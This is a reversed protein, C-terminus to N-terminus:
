LLCISLPSQGENREGHSRPDALAVRTELIRGTMVAVKLIAGVGGWFPHSPHAFFNERGHKLVRAAWDNVNMSPVPFNEKFSERFSM